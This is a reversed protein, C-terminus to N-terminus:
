AADAAQVILAEEEREAALKEAAVALSKKIRDAPPIAITDDAEADIQQCLRDYLRDPDLWAAFAVAPLAEPQRFQGLGFQHAVEVLRESPWDIRSRGADLVYQLDPQGVESLFTVYRRLIQKAEASTTPATRIDRAKNRLEQVTRRCRSIADSTSEGKQLKAPAAPAEKFVVTPPIAEIWRELNQKLNGAISSAEQLRGLRAEAHDVPGKL